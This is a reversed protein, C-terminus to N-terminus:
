PRARHREDRRAPKRAIHLERDHNKLSSRNKAVQVSRGIQVSHHSFPLNGWLDMSELTTRPAGSRPRRQEGPVFPCLVYVVPRCLSLCRRDYASGSPPQALM